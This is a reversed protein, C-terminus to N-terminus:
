PLQIERLDHGSHRDHFARLAEGIHNLPGNPGGCEGCPLRLDSREWKPRLLEGAITGVAPLFPEACTMCRLHFPKLRYRDIQERIRAAEELFMRRANYFQRANYPDKLRCEVLALNTGIQEQYYRETRHARALIQRAREGAVGLRKGIEAFTFGNNRLALAFAERRQRRSMAPLKSLDVDVIPDPNNM